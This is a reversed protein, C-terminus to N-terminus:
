EMGSRHALWQSPVIRILLWAPSLFLLFVGSLLTSLSLSLESLHCLNLFDIFKNIHNDQISPIVTTYLHPAYCLNSSYDCTESCKSSCLSHHVLFASSWWSTHTNFFLNSPNSILHYLIIRNMLHCRLIDFLSTCLLTCCLPFTM